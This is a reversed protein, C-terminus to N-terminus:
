EVRLVRAWNSWVPDLKARRHHVPFRDGPNLLDVLERGEVPLEVELAVPDAAANLVVLITEDGGQRVFALQEHAIHVQQYSGFRLATSNRRIRALQAITGVLDPHPGNDIMDGLDLHPRLPHDSGNTKAGPIGWESGYYISPVGPMTFLLVYLPFLHEPQTLKSAVRDVDHNDAFAYLPLDVYLGGEGFQRNLAYAIEYYNGDVLSSWLGKYCEYNTVSDFMAPNAWARYDGHIIEGVLWCDPRRAHTFARLERWFAPDVQ